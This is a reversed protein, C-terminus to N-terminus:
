RPPRRPTGTPPSWRNGSPPAWMGPPSSRRGRVVGAENLAEATAGAPTVPPTRRTAQPSQAVVLSEYARPEAPAARGAGEGSSLADELGGFRDSTVAAIQEGPTGVPFPDGTPAIPAAAGRRGRLVLAGAIGALALGVLGGDVITTSGGGGGVAPVDGTAGSPDSAAELCPAGESELVCFSASLYSPEETWRVEQGNELAMFNCQPELEAVVRHTGLTADAPVTFPISIGSAGPSWTGIQVMASTDTPDDPGDYLGSPDWFFTIREPLGWTASLPGPGTEYCGLLDGRLTVNTGRPASAPELWVSEARAPATPPVVVALLVAGFLGAVALVAGAFPRRPREM